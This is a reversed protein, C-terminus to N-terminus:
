FTFNEKEGVSTLFHQRRISNPSFLAYFTPSSAVSRWSTRVRYLVSCLAGKSGTNLATRVGKYDAEFAGQFPMKRERRWKQSQFSPRQFRRRKMETSAPFFVHWNEGPFRNQWSMAAWPETSDTIWVRRAQERGFPFPPAPSLRNIAGNIYKLVLAFNM